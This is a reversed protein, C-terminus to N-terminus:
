QNGPSPVLLPERAVPTKSNGPPRTVPHILDRLGKLPQRPVVSNLRWTEEGLAIEKKREKKLGATNRTLAVALSTMATLKNSAKTCCEALM